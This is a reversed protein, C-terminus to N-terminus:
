GGFFIESVTKGYLACLRRKVDDRPVRAGTEYSSIANQSVGIKYAVETQSMDGRLERLKKGCAKRELENM